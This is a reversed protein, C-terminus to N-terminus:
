CGLLFTRELKHLPFLTMLRLPQSIMLCSDTFCLYNNTFHSYFQNFYFNLFLMDQCFASLHSSLTHPFHYSLPLSFEDQRNECCHHMLPIPILHQYTDSLNPHEVM